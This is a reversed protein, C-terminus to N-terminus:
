LAQRKQIKLWFDLQCRNYFVKRAPSIARSATEVVEYSLWCESCQQDDDPLALDQERQYRIVVGNDFRYLGTEEEIGDQQNVVVQHDVRTVAATAGNLIEAVYRALQDASDTM